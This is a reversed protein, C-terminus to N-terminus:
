CSNDSQYLYFDIQQFYLMTEEDHGSREAVVSCGGYPNQKTFLRKIFNANKMAQLKEHHYINVQVRVQDFGLWGETSSEPVTSVDQYTVYGNELDSGKPLPAPGCNFHPNLLANCTEIALM